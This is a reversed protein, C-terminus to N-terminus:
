SFHSKLAIDALTHVLLLDYSLMKRKFLFQLWLKVFINLSCLRLTEFLVHGQITGAAELDKKLSRFHNNSM